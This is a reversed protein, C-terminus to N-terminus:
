ITLISTATYSILIALFLPVSQKFKLSLILYISILYLCFITLLLLNLSLIIPILAKIDAGGLFHKTSHEKNYSFTILMIIIILMHLITISSINLYILPISTAAIFLIIKNSVTRTKLDSWGAYCLIAVILFRLLYQYLIM